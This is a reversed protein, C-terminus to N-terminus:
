DKVPATLQLDSSRGIFELYGKSVLSYVLEQGKRYSLNLSKFLEGYRCQKKQDIFLLIEKETPNKIQKIDIFHDKNVNM